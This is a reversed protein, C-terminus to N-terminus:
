KITLNQTIIINFYKINLNILKKINISIKYYNIIINKLKNVLKM